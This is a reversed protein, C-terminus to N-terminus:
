NKTIRYGSYGNETLYEIFKPKTSIELNNVIEEVNLSTGLLETEQNDIDKSDFKLRVQSITQIFLLDIDRCVTQLLVTIEALKNQIPTITDNIEEAATEISNVIPEAIRQLALIEELKVLAGDIIEKQKIIVTGSVTGGAVPVSINAALVVKAANIIVKALPVFDAAINLVRFFTGFPTDNGLSDAVRTLRRIKEIDRQYKKLQEELKHCEKKYREHKKVLSQLEEETDITTALAAGVIGMKPIRVTVQADIAPVSEALHFTKNKAETISRAVSGVTTKFFNTM